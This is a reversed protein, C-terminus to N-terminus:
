LVGWEAVAASLLRKRVLDGPECRRFATWKIPGGEKVERSLRWTWGCGLHRRGGLQREKPFIQAIRDSMAPKGGVDIGSVKKVV